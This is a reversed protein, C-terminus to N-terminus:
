SSQPRFHYSSGSLLELPFPEIFDFLKGLQWGNDRLSSQGDRSLATLVDSPVTGPRLHEFLALVYFLCSHTPPDRCEQLLQNWDIEAHAVLPALYALERLRREGRIVEEYYKVATYWLTHVDSLRYGSGFHSPVCTAFYKESPFRSGLAFHVDFSMLLMLKGGVDVIPRSMRASRVFAAEEPSLDISILRVYEAIESRPREYEAKAKRNWRELRGLERNFRAQKYGLRELSRRIVRLDLNHVLLDIDAMGGIPRGYWRIADAGALLMVSVKKQETLFFLRLLEERQIEWIKDYVGQHEPCLGTALHLLSDIRKMTLAQMAGDSPTTECYMRPARDMSWRLLELALKSWEPIVSTTAM